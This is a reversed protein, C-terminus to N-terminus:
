VQRTNYRLDLNKFRDASSYLKIMFSIERFDKKYSIFKQEIDTQDLNGVLEFNAWDISCWLEGATGVKGIRIEDISKIISFDGFDTPPAIYIGEYCTGWVTYSFDIQWRRNGWDTTYSYYVTNNKAYVTVPSEIPYIDVWWTTSADHAPLYQFQQPLWQMKSGYMLVRGSTREIAYLKGSAFATGKPWTSGKFTFKTDSTAYNGLTNSDTKGALKRWELGSCIYLEDTDTTVYDIIGDTTVGNPVFPLSQSYSVTKTGVDVLAISDETYVRLYNGSISLWRITKNIIDLTQLVWTSDTYKITKWSWFFLLIWQYDVPHCYEYASSHTHFTSLASLTGSSYTTKYVYLNSFIYFNGRFLIWDTVDRTDLTDMKVADTTWDKVKWDEAGYWIYDWEPSFISTCWEWVGASEYNVQPMLRLESPFNITDIGQQFICQGKGVFFDDQSIWGSFDSLINM